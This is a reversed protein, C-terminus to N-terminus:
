LSNYQCCYRRLAVYDGLVARLLGQQLIRMPLPICHLLFYSSKASSNSNKQREATITSRHSSRHCSCPYNTWTELNDAFELVNGDLVSVAAASAYANRGQTSRCFRPLSVELLDRILIGISDAIESQWLMNIAADSIKWGSAHIITAQM